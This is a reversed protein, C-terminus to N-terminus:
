AAQSAPVPLTAVVATGEGPPSTVRLEGNLAATRDHLGLLGCSEGSRAGGVGDDRVELRLV